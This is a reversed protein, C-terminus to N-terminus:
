KVSISAVRNSGKSHHYSETTHIFPIAYWKILMVSQPSSFHCKTCHCLLFRPKYKVFNSDTRKEGRVGKCQLTNSFRVKSTNTVCM